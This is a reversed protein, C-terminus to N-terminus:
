GAEVKLVPEIATNEPQTIEVVVEFTDEIDVVQSRKSNKGDIKVNVVKPQPLGNGTSEVTGDAALVYADIDLQTKQKPRPEVSWTVIRILEGEREVLESNKLAAKAKKARSGGGSGGGSGGSEGGSGGGPGTGIDSLVLGSLFQAVLGTGTAGSDSTKAPSNTESLIERIRRLAVTVNSKAAKDSENEAHWTPEWRDHAPPEARAFHDDIAPNCIFVSAWGEANSTPEPGDIYQVVLEPARMLAIQHPSAAPKDSRLSISGRQAPSIALYGLSMEDHGQNKQLRRIEHSTTLPSSFKKSRGQLHRVTQLAHVFGSFPPTVTPDPISFEEGDVFLSMKIPPETAGNPPVMKPWLNRLISDSLREATRRNDVELVPDLIAITTGTRDKSLEPLGLAHAADRAQKGTLPAVIDNNVDGWWHRGIYRVGDALYTPTMACAIIREVPKNREDTSVSHIIVTRCQSTLYTIVKGFGYTGGGHHTDRPAGVNFVLDVFDSPEDQKVRDAREPGALGKTGSDTISLIRYDSASGLKKLSPLQKTLHAPIDSLFRNALYQHESEKLERLNIEVAISESGAVRADWANQVCERVLIEHHDLAATGLLESLGDGLMDGNPTSQRGLYTPTM